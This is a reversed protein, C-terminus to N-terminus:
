RIRDLRDLRSQKTFLTLKLEEDFCVEYHDDGDSSLSEEYYVVRYTVVDDYETGDEDDENVFRSEFTAGIPYKQGM